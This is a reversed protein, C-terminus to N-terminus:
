NKIKHMKKMEQRMQNYSKTQPKKKKRECKYDHYVVLAEIARETYYLEFEESDFAWLHEKTRKQNLHDFRQQIIKKHDILGIGKKFKDISGFELFVAALGRLLLPIICYDTLTTRKEEIQYEAFLPQDAIKDCFPLLYKLFDAIKLYKDTELITLSILSEIYFYTQTIDKGVDIGDAMNNLINEEIWIKTENRAAKLSDYKNFLKPDYEFVDSLTELVSWTFYIHAEKRSEEWPWGQNKIHNKDIQSLGNEILDNMMSIPFGEKSLHEREIVTKLHLMTSVALATSDLNPIQNKPTIRRSEGLYPDGPFEFEKEKDPIKSRNILYDVDSQLCELLEPFKKLLRTLNIREFELCPLFICELGECTSVFARDKVDRDDYFSDTACRRKCLAIVAEKVIKTTKDLRGM